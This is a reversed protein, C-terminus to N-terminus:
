LTIFFFNCNIIGVCRHGQFVTLTVFGPIFQCVWLLTIIFCLKFFRAQVTDRFFFAFSLMKTLDPFRDVM